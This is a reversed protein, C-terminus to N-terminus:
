LCTPSSQGEVRIILIDNPSKGHIRCIAKGELIDEYEKDQQITCVYYM